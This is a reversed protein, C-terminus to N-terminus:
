AAMKRAKQSSLDTYCDECVDTEKSVLKNCHPCREYPETSSLPKGVRRLSELVFFGILPSFALSFFFWVMGM